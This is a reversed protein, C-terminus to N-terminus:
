RPKTRGPAAPRGAQEWAGLMMSATATASEGLRRELMPRVRAFLADYYGDNYSGAEARAARDAELLPEVLRHSELLADFAADRANTMPVPPAAKLTLRSAVREFLTTEFRAHVGRQGSLQGDHNEHAHLPQHADQLYHAAAAAFIVADGAAYPAGRGVGALARRLQGVMEAARWPLLGNRELTQAGFKDLAAGYERPLDAFPYSGYEKVGFDLFHHPDERWGVTRWLDPDNVRLILEDRQPEFLARLPAPLLDLAHRMVVRHASAGWAAAPVPLALVALLCFARFTM